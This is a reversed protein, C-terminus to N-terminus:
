HWSLGKKYLSTRVLRYQCLYNRTRVSYMRTQIPIYQKPVLRYLATGLPVLHYWFPVLHYWTTGFRYHATCVPVYQYMSFHHQVTRGLVYLYM